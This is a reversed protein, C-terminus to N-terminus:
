SVSQTYMGRLQYLILPHRNALLLERSLDELVLWFPSNFFPYARRRRPSCGVAMRAGGNSGVTGTKERGVVRGRLGKYHNEPSQLRNARSGPELIGVHRSRSGALAHPLEGDFPEDRLGLSRLESADLQGM